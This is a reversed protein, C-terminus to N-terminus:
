LECNNYVLKQLAKWDIVEGMFLKLLSCDIDRAVREYSKPKLREKLANIFDRRANVDIGFNEHFVQYSYQLRYESVAESDYFKTEASEEGSIHEPLENLEKVYEDIIKKIDTHQIDHINGSYHKKERFFKYHKSMDVTGLEKWNKKAKAYEAKLEEKVTAQLEEVEQITMKM